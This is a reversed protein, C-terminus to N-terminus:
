PCGVLANPARTTRCYPYGMNGNISCNSNTSWYFTLQDVNTCPSVCRSMQRSFGFERQGSFDMREGFYIAEYMTGSTGSVTGSFAAKSRIGIVSTKQSSTQGYSPNRFPAVGTRDTATLNGSTGTYVFWWPPTASSNGTPYTLTDYAGRYDTPYGFPSQISTVTSRPNPPPMMTSYLFTFKTSSEGSMITTYTIASANIGLLLVAVTACRLTLSWAKM